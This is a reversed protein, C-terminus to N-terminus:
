AKFSDGNKIHESGEGLYNIATARLLRIDGATTGERMAQWYGGFPFRLQVQADDDGLTGTLKVNSVTNFFDAVVYEDVGKIRSKDHM